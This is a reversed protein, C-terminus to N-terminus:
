ACVFLKMGRASLSTLRADRLNEVGEDILYLYVDVGQRLAAECLVMVTGVSADSDPTLAFPRAEEGIFDGNRLEERLSFRALERATQSELTKGM